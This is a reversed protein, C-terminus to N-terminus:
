HYSINTMCLNLDAILVTRSQLLEFLVVGVLRYYFLFRSLKFAYLKTWNRM